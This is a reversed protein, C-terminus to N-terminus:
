REVGNRLTPLAPRVAQAARRLTLRGEAGQWVMRNGSRAVQVPARLLETLAREAAMDECLMRTAAVGGFTLTRGTLTGRASLRNCGASGSLQWETGAGQLTLATGAPPTVRETGLRVEQIQWTGGLAPSSLSTSAQDPETM